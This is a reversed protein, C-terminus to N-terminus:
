KSLRRDLQLLHRFQYDQRPPLLPHHLESHDSKSNAARLSDHFVPYRCTCHSSYKKTSGSRYMGVLQSRTTSDFTWSSPGKIEIPPLHIAVNMSVIKSQLAILCPIAGRNCCSSSICVSLMPLLLCSSAFMNASLKHQQM